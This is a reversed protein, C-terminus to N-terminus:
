GDREKYGYRRTYLLHIDSGKLTTKTGKELSMMSIRLVKMNFVIVTVICVTWVGLWYADRDERGFSLFHWAFSIADTLLDVNFWLM